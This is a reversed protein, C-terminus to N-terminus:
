RTFKISVSNLNSRMPPSNWVASSTRKLYRPKSKSFIEELNPPEIKGYRKDTDPPNYYHHMIAQNLKRGEAWSPIPKRPASEDDTSDDSNLDMGYNESDLHSITKNGGKPTMQYSQPSKELDVTINLTKHSSSTDPKEKVLKEDKPHEKLENELNAKHQQEQKLKEREEAEKQLREEKAADLLAKEKAAKEVEMQVAFAKEKELLQEREIRIREQERKRQLEKEAALQREQDIQKLRKVEAIKKLREQEEEERKKQLLEQHKREEEEAQLAKIRRADEEQKRRIEAEEMKKNALKRKAKEEAIREERIKDNKEEMQAFKQEIKRKKAEEKQEERERAETVKKLREERKRKVEELKRKKEEEMKKKRETEQDEKKKLMELRQREKEKIDVKLPTTRKIFSKVITSRGLSNPTSMLLQNKQVTHLFSKLHPKMASHSKPVSVVPLPKKVPSVPQDAQCDEGQSNLVVCSKLLDACHEAKNNGKNEDNTTSVENPNSSKEANRKTSSRTSHRAVQVEAEVVSLFEVVDPDPEDRMDELHDNSRSSSTSSELMAKKHVSRRSARRMSERTLSERISLLSRHGAISRRGSPRHSKRASKFTGRSEKRSKSSESSNESESGQDVSAGPRTTALSAMASDIMPCAFTDLAARIVPANVRAVDSIAVCAMSAVGETDSGVDESCMEESNGITEHVDKNKQHIEASLRDNLTIEVVVKKELLTKACSKTVSSAKNENLTAKLPKSHELDEVKLHEKQLEENILNLSLSSVKVSSRRVTSRRSRSLRRRSPNQNEDRGFSSRKKRGKKKQSPTKPMLQPEESFNSCFMKAAEEQIEQLWVMHNNEVEDIFGQVKKEFMKMLSVNSRALEEM